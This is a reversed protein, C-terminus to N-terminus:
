KVKAVRLIEHAAVAAVAMSGGGVSAGGYGAVGTMTGAGGEGESCLLARGSPLDGGPQSAAVVASLYTGSIYIARSLPAPPSAVRSALALRRNGPPLSPPTHTAFSSSLPTSMDSPFLIWQRNARRPIM